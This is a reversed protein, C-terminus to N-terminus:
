SFNLGFYARNFALIDVGLSKTYDVNVYIYSTFYKSPICKTETVTVAPDM